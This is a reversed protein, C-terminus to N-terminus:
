TRAVSYVEHGHGHGHAGLHREHQKLKRDCELVVGEAYDGVVRQEEDTRGARGGKGVEGEGRGRRERERAGSVQGAERKGRGQREGAGGRERGAEKKSAALRVLLGAGVFWSWEGYIYVCVLRRVYIRACAYTYIHIYAYIYIYIYIGWPAPKEPKKTLMVEKRRTFRVLEIVKLSSVMIRLPPRTSAEPSKKPSVLVIDYIGERRELAVSTSVGREESRAGREESRM